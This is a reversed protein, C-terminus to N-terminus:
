GPRNLFTGNRWQLPLLFVANSFKINNLGSLEVFGGDGAAQGGQASIVSDPEWTATNESFFIVEGGSGLDGANALTSSAGTASVTDSAKVLVKGGDGNESSVDILGDQTASGGLLGSIDLSIIGGSAEVIEFTTDSALAWLAEKQYSRALTKWM